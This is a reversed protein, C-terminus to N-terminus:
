EMGSPEDGDWCRGLQEREFRALRDRWAEPPDPEESPGLIMAAETLVYVWSAILFRLAKETPRALEQDLPMAALARNAEGLARALHASISGPATSEVLAAIADHSQGLADV